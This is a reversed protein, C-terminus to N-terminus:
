LCFNTVILENIVQDDVKKFSSKKIQQFSSVNVNKCKFQTFKERSDSDKQERKEAIGM